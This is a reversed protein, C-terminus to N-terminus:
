PTGVARLSALVARLEAADVVGDRCASGLAALAGSVQGVPGPASSLLLAVAALAVGTWPPVAVEVAGDPIHAAAADIDVALAAFIEASESATLVRGGDSDPDGADALSSCLGQVAGLALGVPGGGIPASGLAGAAMGLLAVAVWGIKIGM